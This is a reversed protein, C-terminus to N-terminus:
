KGMEDDPPSQRVFVNRIRLEVKEPLPTERGKGCSYVNMKGSNFEVSHYNPNRKTLSGPAYQPIETVDKVIPNLSKNDEELKEGQKSPILKSLPPLPPLGFNHIGGEITDMIEQLPTRNPM